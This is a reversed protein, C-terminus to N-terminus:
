GGFREDMEEQLEDGIEWPNEGSEAVYLAKLRKCIKQMGAALAEKHMKDDFPIKAGCFYTEALEAIQGLEELNEETM